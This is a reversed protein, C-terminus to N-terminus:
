CSRSGLIMSEDSAESLIATACSFAVILSVSMESAEVKFLLPSYGSACAIPPSFSARQLLGAVAVLRFLQVLCNGCLLIRM